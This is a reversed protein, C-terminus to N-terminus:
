ARRCYDAVPLVRTVVARTGPRVVYESAGYRPSGPHWNYTYGLRTWPYGLQRWQGANEGPYGNPLKWASLMQNAMWQVHAADVGDPFRLACDPNAAVDCLTDTHIAPDAAPRFMSAAPVRMEMFYAVPQTPQLGLLQRLRMAKDEDAWDDCSDRVEPVVTVWVESALTTDRQPWAGAKLTVVLVTGDPDADVGKLPLVNRPEYLAAEALARAYQAQATSPAPRTGPNAMAPACAGLLVLAAGAAARGLRGLLHTHMIPSPSLISPDFVIM